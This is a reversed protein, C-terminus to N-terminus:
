QIALLHYSITVADRWDYTSKPWIPLWPKGPHQLKGELTIAVERLYGTSRVQSGMQKIVQFERKIVAM